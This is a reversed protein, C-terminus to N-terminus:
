TAGLFLNSDKLFNETGRAWNDLLELAPLLNQTRRPLEFALEVAVFTITFLSLPNLCVFAQLLEPSVAVELSLSSLETLISLYLITFPNPWRILDDFPQTNPYYFWYELGARSAGSWLVKFPLFYSPLTHDSHHSSSTLKAWFPVWSYTSIWALRCTHTLVSVVTSLKSVERCILM